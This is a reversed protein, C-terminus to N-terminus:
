ISLTPKNKVWEDWREKLKKEPTSMIESIKTFNEENPISSGNEWFQITNMSVGMYSALKTRALNNDDRFKRLPNAENWQKFEDKM